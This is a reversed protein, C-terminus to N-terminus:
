HSPIICGLISLVRVREDMCQNVVLWDTNDKWFNAIEKQDCRWVCYCEKTGSTMSKYSGSYFWVCGLDLQSSDSKYDRLKRRGIEHCHWNPPSGGGPELCTPDTEPNCSCFPDISEDCGPPGGCSPDEANCGAEGLPDVYSLPNNRVYAYRNQTQPDM